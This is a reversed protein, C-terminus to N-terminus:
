VLLGFTLITGLVFRWSPLWRHIPGLNPRPYNWFRNPEQYPRRKYGRKAGGAAAASKAGGGASRRSSGSAAGDRATSTGKVQPTSGSGASKRRDNVSRRGPTSGDSGGTGRGEAVTARGGTRSHLM